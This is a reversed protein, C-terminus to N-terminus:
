RWVTPLTREAQLAPDDDTAGNPGFVVLTAFRALEDQHDHIPQGGVTVWAHGVINEDYTRVGLVLRPDAGARSLFRYALL